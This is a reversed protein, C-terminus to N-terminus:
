RAGEAPRNVPLQICWDAVALQGECPQREIHVAADRHENVQEEYEPIRSPGESGVIVRERSLFDVVYADWYSGRAYRIQHSLLFETLERHPDPEPNVYADRIVRANDVFNATGWLVFIMIVANRLRASPERAVFAAFCGIPLLIALNIYRVVPLIYVFSCTLGYGALAGCGVLALYVAFAISSATRRLRWLWALRVLMLLMAGAVMWGVIASGTVASSRMTYQDLQIRTGGFLVPLCITLLYRLREIPGMVELCPWRSFMQAQLFLSLGELHFRLDDLILWVLAFGAAMWAMWRAAAATWVSRDAASIVVLAPVAYMTFERHLFGFVLLAGFAFPRSRLMWLFLVYLLPEVGSSGLTQLFSGAVVPTPMIFPLAAVFGVAPRLQLRSSLGRMLLVAALVNLLVLPTKLVAISPRAMWFFPAIIWSQVGLMYNQGYFFLPFTRFESLHKAMLGVIAQDSNFDVYGRVIFVAARVLVLLVALTTFFWTERRGRDFIATM